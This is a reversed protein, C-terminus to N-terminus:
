ASMGGRMGARGAPIGGNQMMDLGEGMVLGMPVGDVSVAFTQGSGIESASALVNAFDASAVLTVLVTGDADM